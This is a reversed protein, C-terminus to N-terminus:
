PKRRTNSQVRALDPATVGIGNNLVAHLADVWPTFDPKEDLTVLRRTLLLYTGVVMDGLLERPLDARVLQSRQLEEFELHLRAMQADLLEWLVGGFSTGAAGSILVECVDRWPWLLELLKRDEEADLALLEQAVQATRTSRLRAVLARTARERAEAYASVEATLARVLQTFLAEKTPFHLYFAGKSLGVAATIDEVRARALGSKLFERRASAILAERAQPDARRAM